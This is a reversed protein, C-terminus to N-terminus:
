PGEPSQLALLQVRRQELPARPLPRGLLRHVGLPVDEDEDVLAREREDEVADLVLESGTLSRDDLLAAPSAEDRALVAHAVQGGVAAAAAQLDAAEASGARRASRSSPACVRRARTAPACPRPARSCTTRTAPSWSS